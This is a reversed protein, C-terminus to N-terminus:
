KPPRTSSTTINTMVQRSDIGSIRTASVTTASTPLRASRPPASAPGAAIPGNRPRPACWSSAPACGPSCRRPAPPRPTARAYGAARPAASCRQRMQHHHRRQLHRQRDQQLRRQREEPQAHRRRQRGPPQHDGFALVVHEKLGHTIMIGPTASNTSTSPILRSPSPSRSRSPAAAVLKLGTRSTALRRTVNPPLRRPPARRKASPRLAALGMAQHAFGAAALRHGRQRHHAQQRAAGLAAGVHQAKVVVVQQPQGFAAHRPQAAVLQRHDELLRHGAQVRGVRDARLHGLHQRAMPLISAAPPMSRAASSSPRTPM